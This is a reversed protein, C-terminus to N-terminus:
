EDRKTKLNNWLQSRLPEPAVLEFAQDDLRAFGELPHGPRWWLANPSVSNPGALYRIYSAALMTASNDVFQEDLEVPCVMVTHAAPVTIVAGMDGIDPVTRGFDLLHGTVFLTDGTLIQFQEPADDGELPTLPEDMLTNALAAAMVEGQEVGWESFYSRDVPCAAGDLDVSLCASLGLPLPDSVADIQNLHHAGVVRVRLDPQLQEYDGLREALLDPAFDDLRAVHGYIILRWDESDVARCTQALNSLGLVCDMDEVTVTGEAEDVTHEGFRAQVVSEVHNLFDRLQEPTWWPAWACSVPPASM